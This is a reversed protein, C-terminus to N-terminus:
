YKTNVINLLPHVDLEQLFGVHCTDPINKIYLNVFITDSFAEGTTLKVFRICEWKIYKQFIVLNLGRYNQSFNILINIRVVLVDEICICVDQLFLHETHLVTSIIIQM